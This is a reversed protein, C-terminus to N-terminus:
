GWVRSEYHGRETMALFDKKPLIVFTDGVMPALASAQCRLAIITVSGKDRQSNCNKDSPNCCHIFNADEIM